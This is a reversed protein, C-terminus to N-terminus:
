VPELRSEVLNAAAALEVLVRDGARHALDTERQELRVDVESDDLVEHPAYALPGEARVDGLAERGPWSTTRM